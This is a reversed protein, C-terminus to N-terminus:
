IPLDIRLQRYFTRGQADKGEIKWMISRVDVTFPLRSLSPNNGLADDWAQITKRSCRSRKAERLVANRIASPTTNKVELQNPNLGSIAYVGNSGKIEYWDSTHGLSQLRLKGLDSSALVYSITRQSVKTISAGSIRLQSNKINGATLQYSAGGTREPNQNSFSKTEIGPIFVQIDKFAVQLGKGTTIPQYATAQQSVTAAQEEQQQRAEEEQKREAEKVKVDAVFDGLNRSDKETVITSTDGLVIAGSTKNNEDDNCAAFLACVMLLSFGYKKM